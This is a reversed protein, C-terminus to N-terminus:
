APLQRGRYEVPEGAMWLERGPASRLVPDAGVERVHRDWRRGRTSRKGPYAVQLVRYRGATLQPLEPVVVIGYPCIDRRVSPLTVATADDYQVVTRHAHVLSPPNGDKGLMLSRQGTDRARVFMPEGTKFLVSHVDQDRVASPRLWHGADSQMDGSSKADRVDVGTSCQGGHPDFSRENVGCGPGNWRPARAGHQGCPNLLSQRCGLAQLCFQRGSRTAAM